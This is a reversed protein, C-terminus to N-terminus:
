VYMCVYHKFPIYLLGLLMVGKLLLSVRSYNKSSQARLFLFASVGLPIIIGLFMYVGSPIDQLYAIFVFLLAGLTIIYIAMVIFKAVPIGFVIPITNRGFAADGEFDEIDKVMERILSLLFAFLAYGLSWFMLTEFSLYMKSLVRHYMYNLPILEYIAVILPVMAVLLAVIINGVFAQKSFSTSYLWLLSAIFVFLFAFNWHGIHVSVIIGLLIGIVNFIWHWLMVIRRSIHKGVIVSDPKNIMDMNVDFYDNIIYGAACIFVTALVLFLFQIFPLQLELTVNMIRYQKLMAYFLGYRMIFQTAVIILLNKYRILQLFHKM